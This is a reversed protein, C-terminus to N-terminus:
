CDTDGALLWPRWSLRRRRLSRASSSVGTPSRIHLPHGDCTTGPPPWKVYKDCKHGVATARENFADMIMDQADEISIQEAVALAPACEADMMLDGMESAVTVDQESAKSEESIGLSLEFARANFADLIMQQADSPSIQEAIALVGPGADVRPKKPPTAAEGEDDVPAYQAPQTAPQTTPPTADAQTARASGGSSSGATAHTALTDAAASEVLTDDVGLTTECTDEPLLAEDKDIAYIPYTGRNVRIFWNYSLDDMPQPTRELSDLRWIQGDISKLAIWHQQRLNAVAGVCQHIAGPDRFLPEWRLEYRTEHKGALSKSIMDLALVMVNVSYWGSLREHQGREESPYMELYRDCAARMLAPTLLKRGIANNLAHMGCRSQVQREFYGDYVLPPPPAAPPLTGNPRNTRWGLTPTHNALAAQTHQEQSLALDGVAVEREEQGDSSSSDDADPAEHDDDDAEAEDDDLCDDFELVQPPKKQGGAETIWWTTEPPFIPDGRETEFPPRQSGSQSALDVRDIWSLLHHIVTQAQPQPNLVQCLDRLRLFTDRRPSLRDRIYTAGPVYRWDNTVEIARILAENVDIGTRRWADAVEELLDYWPPLCNFHFM